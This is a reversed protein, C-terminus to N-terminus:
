QCKNFIIMKPHKPPYWWKLFCGYPSQHNEPYWRFFPGGYSGLRGFPVLIKSRNPVFARHQVSALWPTQKKRVSTPSPPFTFINGGWFFVHWFFNPCSKSIIIIYMIYTISAALFLCYLTCVKRPHFGM